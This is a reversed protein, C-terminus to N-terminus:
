AVEAEIRAIRDELSPHTAFLRLMGKTSSIKFSQFAPQEVSKDHIEVTKMLAKLAGIMKEKGALRAGGNDARYERYRSFTAIVISGLIMFFIEFVFVLIMYLFPSPAEDGKRGAKAVVYALARAFFMVFANVIGQLLTMTVMDGNAIHTIEHAL